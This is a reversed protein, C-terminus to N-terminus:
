KLAGELRSNEITPFTCWVLPLHGPNGPNYIASFGFFPLYLSGIGISNPFSLPQTIKTLTLAHSLLRRLTHGRFDIKQEFEGKAKYVRNFESHQQRRWNREGKRWGMKTGNCFSINLNCSVVHGPVFIANLDM